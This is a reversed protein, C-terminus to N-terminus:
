DAHDQLTYAQPPPPSVIRDDLQQEPPANLVIPSPLDYTPSNDHGKIPSGLLSMGAAFELEESLAEESMALQHIENDLSDDEEDLTSRTTWNAMLAIDYADAKDVDSFDRLVDELESMQPLALAQAMRRIDENLTESSASPDYEFDDYEHRDRPLM